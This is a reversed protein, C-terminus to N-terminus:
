MDLLDDDDELINSTQSTNPKEDAKPDRVTYVGKKGEVSFIIGRQAMRYCKNNVFKRELVENTRRFLEILIMDLEIHDGAAKVITYIEQELDDTKAGSLQEILELPLDSLDGYKSPVPKSWRRLRELEEKASSLGEIRKEWVPIAPTPTDRERADDIWKQFVAQAASISEIAKDM